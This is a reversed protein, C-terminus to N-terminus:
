LTGASGSEAMYTFSDSRALDLTMVNTTPDQQMSIIRSWITTNRWGSRLRVPIDDGPQFTGFWANSHNRVVIQVVADMNLRSHLVRRAKVYMRDPRTVTQDTYIIVRHLRDTPVAAPARVTKSGQGAGIGVVWNSFTSGDRHVQGPIIINEGEVFRLDDKRTGIRPVGFELKHLVDTKRDDSWRHREKFDFVAEQQISSIEQGIDTANWWALEFAVPGMLHQVKTGDPHFHDLRMRPTLFNGKTGPRPGVGHYAISAPIDGIAQIRHEENGILFKHGTIAGSTSHVEVAIADKFADGKLHSVYDPPKIQAGLLVGSKATGIRMGLDSSPVQNQLWDWLYRVVDLADINTQHYLPGEYPQGNPYGAFGTATIGWAPGNFTSDTVIGGFKIDDGEELYLATQWENFLPEGSSDKLDPRPPGLVFTFTDAGNLMWTILPQQIGQVDRHLWEGTLLNQAHLRPMKSRIFVPVAPALGVAGLQVTSGLVQHATNWFRTATAAAPSFDINTFGAGSSLGTIAFVQSQLLTDVMNMYIIDVYFLTAASPTGQIVCYFRVNVAGAPPTMEPVTLEAQVGSSLAVINGLVTAIVTNSGDLWEVKLRAGSAWNASPTIRCYAKYKTGTRVGTINESVMGPLATVGNPTILCSHTGLDIGWPNLVSVSLAAGNQATWPSVTGGEFSMNSNIRGEGPNSLQGSYLQFQQGVQLNAQAAMADTIIFRSTTSDAGSTVVWPSALDTKTVQIADAAGAADTSALSLAFTSVSISDAAAAAEHQPVAAAVSVRDVAGAAEANCLGIVFMLWGSLPNGISATATATAKSTTLDAAAALYGAANGTVPDGLTKFAGTWGPVGGIQGNWEFALLTEGAQGLPGTAASATTGTGSATAPSFSTDLMVTGPADVAWVNVPSVTGTALTVTIRDSGARLAVSDPSTGSQGFCQFVTISNGGSTVTGIKRYVQAKSDSVGAVLGSTTTVAVILNDGAAVSGTLPVQYINSPAGSAANFRAVTATVASPAPPMFM